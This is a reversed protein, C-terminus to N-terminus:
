SSLSMCISFSMRDDLQDILRLESDIVIFAFVICDRETPWVRMAIASTVMKEKMWNTCNIVLNM